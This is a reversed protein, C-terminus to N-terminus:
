GLSSNSDKFLPPDAHFFQQRGRGVFRKKKLIEHSKPSMKAFYKPNTGKKLPNHAALRISILFMVLFTIESIVPTYQILNLILVTGMEVNKTLCPFLIYSANGGATTATDQAVCVGQWVHGEVM